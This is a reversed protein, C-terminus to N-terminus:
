LVTSMVANTKAFTPNLSHGLELKPCFAISPGVTRCLGLAGCTSWTAGGKKAAAILEEDYPCNLAICRKAEHVLHELVVTRKGVKGNM